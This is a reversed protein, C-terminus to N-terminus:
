NRRRTPTGCSSTAPIPISAAKARLCSAALGWSPVAPGGAASPLNQQEPLVVPLPKGHDACYEHDFTSGASVDGFGDGDGDVCSHAPMGDAPTGYIDWGLKEGTWTFIQDVTEGPVSLTTFQSRSHPLLRGDRAIIDANNGHYHFPHQGQDGGVLRMLLKQGPTMRPTCNYPQHPLWSVFADALDDPGARGNFFWYVPWYRTMDVESFRGQEVLQHIVPDMQTMLFLYEHDFRTNADNYAYDGGLSPRVIIAGVLGM